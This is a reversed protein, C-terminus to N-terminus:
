RWISGHVRVFKVADIVHASDSLENTERVRLVGRAILSIRKSGSVRSFIGKRDVSINGDWITGSDTIGEENIYSSTKETIQGAECRLAIHTQSQNVSEDYFFMIILIVTIVTLIIIPLVVAAEAIYSGRRSRVSLSNM